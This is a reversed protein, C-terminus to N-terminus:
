IECESGMKGCSEATYGLGNLVEAFDGEKDRWVGDEIYESLKDVLGSKVCLYGKSKLFEIALCRKFSIINSSILSLVERKIAEKALSELELSLNRKDLEAAIHNEFLINEQYTGLNDVIQEVASWITEALDTAEREYGKYTHKRLRDTEVRKMEELNVM